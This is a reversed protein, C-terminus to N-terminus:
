GDPSAINSSDMVSTSPQILPSSYPSRRETHYDHDVPPTTISTVNLQPPTPTPAYMTSNGQGRSTTTSSRTYNQEHLNQADLSSAVHPLCSADEPPAQVMDYSVPAEVEVQSHPLQSNEKHYYQDDGYKEQEYRPYGNQTLSFPVQSVGVSYVPSITHSRM